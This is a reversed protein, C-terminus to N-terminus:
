PGDDDEEEDTVLSWEGSDQPWDATPSVLEPSHSGVSRTWGSPPDQVISSSTSSGMAARGREIVGGTAYGVSPVSEEFNGATNPPVFSNQAQLM